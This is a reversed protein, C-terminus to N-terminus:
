KTPMAAIITNLTDATVARTHIVTYGVGQLVTDVFQDREKRDARDHSSDDLEVVAKVHLDRDCLVFDVHKSQIKYLLTKYKAEGKRPEVLDLLRVKPCIVLEAADALEKLKKYNAWENKTLLFRRQYAKSFDIDTVDEENTRKGKNDLKKMLIRYAAGMGILLLVWFGIKLFDM